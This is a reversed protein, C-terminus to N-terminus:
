KKFVKLFLCRVSNSKNRKTSLVCMSSGVKQGRNMMAPQLSLMIMAVFQVFLLPETNTQNRINKKIDKM